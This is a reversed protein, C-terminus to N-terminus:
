SARVAFVLFDDQSILELPVIVFKFNFASTLIDKHDKDLETLSNALFCEQSSGIDIM